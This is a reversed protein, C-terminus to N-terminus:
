RWNRDIPFVMGTDFAVDCRKAAIECYEESCEIGIAERGFKIAAVLLSGAGLYPDLIIGKPVWRLRLVWDWLAVPKQTPHYNEQKESERRFGDWLHRFVRVGFIYNTWALEATAQSITDSRKKDWVLWGSSVPLKDACYNAGWIVAPKGTAVIWTPDFPANDGIIAPYDNGPAFRETRGELNARGSGFNTRCKIGYPPDTMVADFPLDICNLLTRCYGKYISIGGRRYYLPRKVPEKVPVKIAVSSCHQRKPKIKVDFEQPNFPLFTQVTCVQRDTLKV